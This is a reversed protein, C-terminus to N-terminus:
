RGYQTPPAGDTPGGTRARPLEGSDHTSDDDVPPRIEEVIGDDVYRLQNEDFWLEHKKGEKNLEQNSVCYQVCLNIYETRTIIVGAFGTVVDRVRQGLEFKFTKM